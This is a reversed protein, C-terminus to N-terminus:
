FRFGRRWKVEGPKGSKLLLAVSSVVLLASVIVVVTIPEDAFIAGAFLAVVPNAFAYTSVAVPSVHKLLYQYCIMGLISSIIALYFLSKWVPSSPWVFEEGCLASAIFLFCGGTLLQFGIEDYLNKVAKSNRTLYVTGAAWSASSALILLFPWRVIEENGHAPSKFVLLAVGAIGCFIGLWTQWRNNLGHGLIWHMLLLWIPTSAVLLAAIGSPVWRMAFTMIGTGAAYFLFGLIIIRPLDKKQPPRRWGGAFIMLTLGALVCRLAGFYFAGVARVGQVMFLFSMGWAVYIVFFAAVVPFTLSRRNM